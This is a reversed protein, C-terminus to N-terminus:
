KVERLAKEVDKLRGTEYLIILISDDTVETDASFMFKGERYLTFVVYFEGRLMPLKKGILNRFKDNVPREIINFETKEIAGVLDAVLPKLIHIAVNAAAYEDANVPNLNLRHLMKDVEITSTKVFMQKAGKTQAYLATLINLEEIDTAAVFADCEHLRLNDLIEPDNPKGHIVILDPDM